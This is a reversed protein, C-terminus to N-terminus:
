YYGRQQNFKDNARRQKKEYRKSGVSLNQNNDIGISISKDNGIAYLLCKILSLGTTFVPMTYHFFLSRNRNYCTLFGIVVIDIPLNLYVNVQVHADSHSTM